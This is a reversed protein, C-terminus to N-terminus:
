QLILPSLFFPFFQSRPSTSAITYEPWGLTSISSSFLSLYVYQLKPIYGIIYFYYTDYNCQLQGIRVETYVRAEACRVEVHGAVYEDM